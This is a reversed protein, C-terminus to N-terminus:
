ARPARYWQWMQAGARCDVNPAGRRARRDPDWVTRTDINFRTNGSSDRTGAHLHAASFGLLEGPRLSVPAGPGRPQTRATPLLPYGHEGRQRFGDFSWAASDNAVPLRFAEPWLLMTRTDALPYLPLWWNIQAAIGSGWTDRHPPLTGLRPHDIDTRSPVARLRIRDMWTAEPPYGIAALTADWHTALTEDTAVARRAQLALRRFEAASRGGEAAVPEQTGFVRALITRARGVLLDLSPLGGFVLLAGEFLAESLSAPPTGPTWREFAVATHM